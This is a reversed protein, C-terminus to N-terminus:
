KWAQAYADLSCCRPQTAPRAASYRTARADQLSRLRPVAFVAARSSSLDNRGAGDHGPQPRGASENGGHKTRPMLSQAVNMLHTNANSSRKEPLGLVRLLVREVNGDVVAVSEGFAISAIAASTYEGVGPLRRLEEATHPLKGHLEREVFQAGQLLMRARRYYGLGSWLALVESEDAAALAQVTPFRQMFERYRDIVTAVRTQQLM